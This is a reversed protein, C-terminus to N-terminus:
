DDVVVVAEVGWGGDGRLALSGEVGLRVFVEDLRQVRHPETSDAEAFSRAHKADVVPREPQLVFFASVGDAPQADLTANFHVRLCRDVLVRLMRMRGLVAWSRMVCLRLLFDGGTDTDGVIRIVVVDIKALRGVTNGHDAGAKGSVERGIERPRILVGHHPRLRRMNCHGASNVETLYSRFM